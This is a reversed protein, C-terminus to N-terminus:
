IPALTGSSRICKGKHTHVTNKYKAAALAICTDYDPLREIVIPGNPSSVILIWMVFAPVVM